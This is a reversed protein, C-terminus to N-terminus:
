SNIGPAQVYHVAKAEMKFVTIAENQEEIYLEYEERVVDDVGDILM